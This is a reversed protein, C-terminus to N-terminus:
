TALCRRSDGLSRRLLWRRALAHPLWRAQHDGCGSTGPAPTDAGLGARRRADADSPKERACASGCHRQAYGACTLPTLPLSATPLCAPIYLRCGQFWREALASPPPTARAHAPKPPAASKEGRGGPTEVIASATVGHSIAFAGRPVLCPPKHACWPILLM